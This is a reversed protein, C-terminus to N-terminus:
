SPRAKETVRFTCFPYGSVSPQLKATQDVSSATKQSLLAADMQCLEPHASIIVAYPCRGLIIRAGDASAEWRAQYHMGNLQDVARTLRLPLSTKEDPRTKGALQGALAALGAARMDSTGDKLWVELLAGALDDMGDGQIRRSLGYVNEPRGRRPQRLGVLEILGNSELIALHHRVNAGTMNM